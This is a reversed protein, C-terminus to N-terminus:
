NRSVSTAWEAPETGFIRALAEPPMSRAPGLYQVEGLRLGLISDSLALAVELYRFSCVMTLRRSLRLRRLADILERAEPEALQSFPGDVLLVSPRNALLRALRLRQRGGDSLDAAKESALAHLDVAEIAEQALRRGEGSPGKKRPGGCSMQALLVNQLVSLDPVERESLDLFGVRRDLERLNPRDVALGDVTVTGDDPRLRGNLCRLLTSKGSGDPGLVGLCEGPRVHFSVSDLGMLADFRKSINLADIM